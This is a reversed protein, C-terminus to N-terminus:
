PDEGFFRFEWEAGLINADLPIKKETRDLYYDARM